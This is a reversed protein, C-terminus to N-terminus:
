REALFLVLWRGYLPLKDTVTVEVENWDFQEDKRVLLNRFGKSCAMCKSVSEIKEKPSM